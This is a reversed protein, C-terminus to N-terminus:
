GVSRTNRRNFFDAWSVVEPHQKLLARRQRETMGGWIGYEVQNDLADAGCQQMVPCHRCIVAAKRQAAGRVFLEDPDKSKCLAKSVWARDDAAVARLNSNAAALNPRQAAPRPESV